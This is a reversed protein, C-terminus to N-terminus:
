RCLYKPIDINNIICKAKELINMSGNLDRNVLVHKTNNNVTVNTSRLLGHVQKRTNKLWPKPHQRMRFKEMDNGDIFSKKSTNFENVLYLKYGANKFLKRISKGKTPEKHKMSHKQSFDGICILTNEPGGFKNKFNNIMWSESKKKNIYSYWKLKRYLEKEYYPQVLINLKNKNKVYEKFLKYDCTKSNYNSLSSELEEITKDNIQNNKKDINIIKKYKKMKTEKRRQNQSYRFISIKDKGNNKKIKQGNTAYILDEKGPDIGIIQMLKYTEKENDTISDIYKNSSYNNPKKYAKLRIRKLPNYLSNKVFLLTCGFGDTVISHNFKYSKDKFMKRETRFLMNWIDDQLLKTNGKTLYHTKNLNDPFLTHILSTTDLRIYKPICSKRIPFCNFTKKNKLEIERSMKIMSELFSCPNENIQKQLSESTLQKPFINNNIHQKCDNFLHINYKNAQNIIDFKFHKLKKRYNHLVTNILKSDGAFETKISHEISHKDVFVNIYRFLFDIYHEKIHTEINTIIDVSEYDLVTNLHTFSIKKENGLLNKYENDYFIQLKNMIVKKENSNKKGANNKVGITKIISKILITDIIPVIGSKDYEYLCYLKLYNYTHTDLKNVISVIDNIKSINTKDKIISILSTKVSKYNTLSKEYKETYAKLKDSM